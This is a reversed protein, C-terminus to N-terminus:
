RVRTWRFAAAEGPRTCPFAPGYRRATPPHDRCLEVFTLSEVEARHRAHRRVVDHGGALL